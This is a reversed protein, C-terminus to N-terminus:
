RRALPASVPTVRWIIGTKKQPLPKDGMGMVGFDVVYLTNGDPTFGVDVPREIGGSKLMSAPGNDDDDNNIVFPAIIGTNPDVTVVRFGVPAVTRGVQPAMDGFEAVYATGVGFAETRGFDIGDASAHVAFNAKPYPPQNPIEALLPEPQKM